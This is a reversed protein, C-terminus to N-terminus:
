QEGDYVRTLNYKIKKDIAKDLDLDLDYKCYLREENLYFKEQCGRLKESADSFNMKKM